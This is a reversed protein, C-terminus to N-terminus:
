GPFLLLKLGMAVLLVEVALVFARESLRDVLRRGMWAGAFMAIGLVLGVVITEWTILAYRAFVVGRTVHMGFACVAETAIYAGRRLGYALFFPTLMPGITVVISSLFGFVAGLLPFHSMKPRLDYRALLRRLPLALILFAAIVGSLWELRTGAFVAAGIATAPVAGALFRTALRGNVDGRSWWLRSLNGVLMTVTLVPVAARVGLVSAAVPVLLVGAGFGAVGAVTSGLLATAILVLWGATGPL